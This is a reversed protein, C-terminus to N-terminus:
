LLEVVTPLPKQLYSYVHQKIENRRKDENVRQGNIKIMYVQQQQRINENVARLQSVHEDEDAIDDYLDSSDLAPCHDKKWTMFAQLFKFSLISILKDLEDNTIIHWQPSSTIIASSGISTEYIYLTNPKTTFACIPLTTLSERVVAEPNVDYGDQKADLITRLHSQINTKICAKIGATLDVEFVTELHEQSIHFTRFMDIASTSPPHEQLYDIIQKKQRTNQRNELQDVRKQLKDCKYAFEKVLKFLETITPTTDYDDEHVQTTRHWFGCMVSHKEMNEKKQWKQFCYKCQFGSMIRIPKTNHMDM